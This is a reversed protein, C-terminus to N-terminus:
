NHPWSYLYLEREREGRRMSINIILKFVIMKQTSVYLTRKDSAQTLRILSPFILCKTKHTWLFNFHHTVAQTTWLGTSFRKTWVLLGRGQRHQVDVDERRIFVELKAQRDENLQHANYLIFVDRHVILFYEPLSLVPPSALDSPAWDVEERTRMNHSKNIAVIRESLCLLLSWIKYLSM